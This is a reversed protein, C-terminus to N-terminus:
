KKINYNRTEWISLRADSPSTIEDTSLKKDEKPVIEKGKRVMAITSGNPNVRPGTTVLTWTIEKAIIRAIYERQWVRQKARLVEQSSRLMTQTWETRQQEKQTPTVLSGTKSGQAHQIESEDYGSRTMAIGHITRVAMQPESDEGQKTARNSKKGEPVQKYQQNTKVPNKCEPEFYGKKGCNWCTTKSKDRKVAGIVMPGANTGYSTDSQRPRGQNAKNYHGRNWSFSATNGKKQLQEFDALGFSNKMEHEFADFDDYIARTELKRFEYANDVFDRITPEFWRLAKDKLLEMADRIMHEIHDRYTKKNAESDKRLNEAIEILNAM